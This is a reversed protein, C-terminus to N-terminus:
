IKAGLKKAVLISSAIAFNINYGGCDGDVDLVEGCAYLNKIHKSEVLDNFDKLDLGGSTVQANKIGYTNSLKIKFEKVVKYIPKNLKEAQKNIEVCIAKRFMSELGFSSIIEKLKENNIEPALDILAYANNFGFKNRAFVKSAQMSVIGSIGENKFLLEGDESFQINGDVQIKLNVKVRIGNLSKLFNDDSKLPVLSPNLKTVKHNFKSILNHSNIGITANSGTCIVLHTFKHNDVIFFNDIYEITEIKTNLKINDENIRKILFSLVDNASESYPYVRNELSRTMLGNKNLFEEVNISLIQNVNANYNDSTIKKNTLNCKGNGTLLLKKGVRNQAEFLTFKIDNQTLINALILGSVGGGIICVNMGDM